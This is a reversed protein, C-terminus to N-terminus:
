CAPPQKVYVGLTSISPHDMSINLPQNFEGRIGIDCICPM